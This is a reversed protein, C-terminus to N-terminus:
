PLQDSSMAGSASGGIWRTSIDDPLVGLYSALVESADRLDLHGPRRHPSSRHQLIAPSRAPWAIVGVIGAPASPKSVARDPAVSSDLDGTDFLTGRLVRPLSLARERKDVYFNVYAEEGILQGVDYAIGDTVKATQPGLLASLDPVWASLVLRGPNNLRVQNMLDKSDECQMLIWLLEAETHIWAGSSKLAECKQTCKNIAWKITAQSRFEIESSNIASYLRRRLYQWKAIADLRDSAVCVRGDDWVLADAVEYPHVMERDAVLGMASVARIVNDINDLDIQGHLVEGLPVAATVLDAIGSPTLLSYVQLPQPLVQRLMCGGGCFVQAHDSGTLSPNGILLKALETEHDFGYRRLFEEFLHSYAPTAADHYLAAISLAESSELDIGNRRAWWWALHSVGVSHEFRSVSAFSPFSVFGVNPQRIERLRLVVPCGSALRRARDPIEIDGYLRDRLDLM